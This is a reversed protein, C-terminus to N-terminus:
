EEEEEDEFEFHHEFSVHTGFRGNYAEEVEQLLDVTITYGEKKMLVFADELRQLEIHEDVYVTCGSEDNLAHEFDHIAWFANAYEVNISQPGNESLLWSLYAILLDADYSTYCRNDLDLTVSGMNGEFMPEWRGPSWRRNVEMGCGHILFKVHNLPIYFVCSGTFEGDTRDINMTVNQVTYQM